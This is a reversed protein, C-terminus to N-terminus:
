KEPPWQTGDKLYLKCPPPIMAPDAESIPIKKGAAIQDQHQAIFAIWLDRARAAAAPSPANTSSAGTYEELTGLL